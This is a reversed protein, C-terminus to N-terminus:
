KELFDFFKKYDLYGQINGADYQMQMMDKVADTWNIKRFLDHYTREEPELKGMGAGMFSSLAGPCEGDETVYCSYAYMDIYDSNNPDVNAVDVMRETINGDKDWVKVKYQPNAPDFDKPEYVTVSYDTGCSASISREGEDNDFYHLVFTGGPMQSRQAKGMRNAFNGAADDAGNAAMKGTRRNEYGAAKYDFPGIGNMHM